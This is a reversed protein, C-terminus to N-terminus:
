VSLCITSQLEPLSRPQLGLNPLMLSSHMVSVIPIILIAQPSTHLTCRAESVWCGRCFLYPPPFHCNLLYQQSQESHSTPWTSRWQGWDTKVGLQRRDHLSLTLRINLHNGDNTWSRNVMWRTCQYCCRVGQWVSASAAVPIPPQHPHHAQLCLYLSQTCALFPVGTENSCSPLLAPHYVIYKSPILINQSCTFLDQDWIPNFTWLINSAGLFTCLPYACVCSILLEPIADPVWSSGNEGLALEQTIKSRRANNGVASCGDPQKRKWM